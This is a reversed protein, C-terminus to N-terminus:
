IVLGVATVISSSIREKESYDLEVPEITRANHFCQWLHQSISWYVVLANEIKELSVEKFLDAYEYEETFIAHAFVKSRIAKCAGRLMGNHPRALKFLSAMSAKSPLNKGELFEPNVNLIKPKRALFAERSFDHINRLCHANFSSFSKGDVSDDGLRGLYLFLSRQVAGNHLMWFESNKNIANVYEQHALMKRFQMYSYLLALASETESVVFNIWRETNM